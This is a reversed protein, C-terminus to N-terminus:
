KDLFYEVSGRVFSTIRDNISNEMKKKLSQITRNDKVAVETNNTIRTFGLITKKILNITNKSTKEPKAVKKAYRELEVISGNSIKAIILLLNKVVKKIM